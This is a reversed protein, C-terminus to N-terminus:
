PIKAFIKQAARIQSPHFGAIALDGIFHPDRYRGDLQLASRGSAAAAADDGKAGQNIALAILPHPNYPELQAAKRAEAVAWDYQNLLHHELSLNYYAVENDSSISAAWAHVAAADEVYDRKLLVIGLANLAPVYLPDRYVTRLLSETASEEKGALHQTWGLGVRGSLNTPDLRVSAKFATIADEYRAQDRYSLGAARQQSSEAKQSPSSTWCSAILIWSALDCFM